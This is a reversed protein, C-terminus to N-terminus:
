INKLEKVWKKKFRIKNRMSLLMISKKSSSTHQNHYIVSKPEYYIKYGAHRVAMSLDVDEYYAPSYIKDFGNIKQFVSKKILFCAATCHDVERFFSYDYLNPSQGAGLVKCNGNKTIIGGAEQILGNFDLIKGGVSGCDPITKIRHLLPELWGPTLLTDNNLFLLYEGRAKEAGQNCANGFGVNEKNYLVTVNQLKNLFTKTKDDSNNDVVILEYPINTYQLLSDFCQHTYEVKNFSLIIISVTPENYKPFIGNFDDISTKTSVRYPKINIVKNENKKKKFLKKLGFTDNWFEQNAEIVGDYVSRRFTSRPLFYNIVSDFLYWIKWVLSRQYASISEQLHYNREKLQAIKDELRVIEKERQELYATTSTNNKGENISDIAEVPKQQYIFNKMKEIFYKSDFLEARLVCANRYSELDKNIISVANVIKDANIDDILIGTEDNIITEEYGGENPAIVPKGSAMAEIPTMGFDEDQSTTIFGKSNAYLKVLEEDDVWHKLTVNPPKISQIYKAYKKFHDSREYSGVIILREQPMKEFAKLQMEVRKHNILRNVSLWYNDNNNFYFKSTDTPPYIVASDRNLYKKVRARVNKSTSIIKDVHKVYKRNLYRNIQVWLDFLPRKYWSVYTKRSYKYLDWIERIPSYVYWLNPKNLKSSSVAWDGSIIFLDYKGSLSLRSFRWLTMQQRFPPSVPVWGITKIDIDKFGLKEIINKNLVTTYIDAGLGRALILTAIEAGGINDM